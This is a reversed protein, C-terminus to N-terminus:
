RSPDRIGKPPTFGQIGAKAPIVPSHTPATVGAFAPTWPNCPFDPKRSQSHHRPPPTEETPQQPAPPNFGQIGAKAPIVPSHTTATVGAFAPTWPNCPFDPNRSQSPHRPPPTEETPQQPAPPSFGQIGAKAPIVLTHPTATVGAFAPTWPQAVPNRTLGPIVSKSSDMRNLM